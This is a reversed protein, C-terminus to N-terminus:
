GMTMPAVAVAALESSGREPLAVPVDPYTSRNRSLFIVHINTLM